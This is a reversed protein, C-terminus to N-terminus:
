HSRPCGPDKIEKNIWKIAQQLQNTITESKGGKLLLVLSASILEASRRQADNKLKHWDNNDIKLELHLRTSIEISEQSFTSKKM